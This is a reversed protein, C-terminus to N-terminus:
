IPNPRKDPVRQRCPVRRALANMRRVQELQDPEHQAIFVGEITKALYLPPPSQQRVALVFQVHQIETRLARGFALVDPPANAVYGLLLQLAALDPLQQEAYHM